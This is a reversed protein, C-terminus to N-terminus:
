PSGQGVQRGSRRLFWRDLVVRRVFTRNGLLRGGLLRLVGNPLRTALSRGRPPGLRATLRDAYSALDDAGYCDGAELITQAALTGSEIAPLIGEGSQPHALGAADGVLLVGAAAPPPPRREYLRYAHGSMRQPIPFRVTGREALFDVFEAVHRTLHRRDFRGLGVNLFDGTRFCWGYGALDGCFFLQPVEPDVDVRGRHEAPIPFEAEQAVVVSPEDGMGRAPDLNLALRVERAVPCFHGGAGVLVSARIEDNVIWRGESRRIAEIPYELRLPVGCRRLLYDDFEFRRIGFSVTRGYRVHTEPGGIRGVRFGTIPQLVRRRRYDDVDLGVREIAPPTIWGACPKGRPFPSKDALLVDLGADRLARACTSGAPGGGVILVDCTEM